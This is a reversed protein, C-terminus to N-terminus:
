KTASRRLACDASARGRITRLTLLEKQSLFMARKQKTSVLFDLSWRVTNQVYGQAFADVRAGPPILHHSVKTNVKKDWFKDSMKTLEKGFWAIRRKVMKQVPVSRVPHRVERLAAIEDATIKLSRDVTIAGHRQMHETIYLLLESALADAASIHELRGVVARQALVIEANWLKLQQLWPEAESAARKSRLAFYPSNMEEAITLGVNAVPDTQIGIERTKCERSEEQLTLSKRLAANEVCRTELNARLREIVRQQEHQEDILLATRAVCEATEMSKQETMELLNKCMKESDIKSTELEENRVEASHFHQQLHMIKSNAANLRQQQVFNTRMTAALEERLNWVESQFDASQWAADPSSEKMLNSLTAEATDAALKSRLVEVELEAVRAKEEDLQNETTTLAARLNEVLERLGSIVSEIHALDSEGHGFSKESENFIRRCVQAANSEPTCESVDLSTVSGV